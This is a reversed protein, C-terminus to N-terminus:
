SNLTQDNVSKTFQSILLFLDFVIHFRLTENTSKSFFIKVLHWMSKFRVRCLFM